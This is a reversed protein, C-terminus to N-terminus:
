NEEASALADAAALERERLVTHIRAINRKLTTIRASSELQGTAFQFRLNFMEQKAEDLQDLLQDDALERLTGAAM